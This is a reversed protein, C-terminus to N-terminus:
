PGHKLLRTVTVEASFVSNVTQNEKTPTYDEGEFHNKNSSYYRSSVTVQWESNTFSNNLGNYQGFGNISRIMVCGQSYVYTSFFSVVLLIIILKKM